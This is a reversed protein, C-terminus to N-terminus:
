RWSLYAWYTRYHLYSLSCRCHHHGFSLSLPDHLPLFRWYGLHSGTSTVQLPLVQGHADFPEMNATGQRCVTEDGSRWSDVSHRSPCLWLRCFPRPSTEARRSRSQSLSYTRRIQKSTLKSWSPLIQNLSISRTFSLSVTAEIMSSNKEMHAIQKQNRSLKWNQPSQPNQSLEKRFSVSRGRRRGRCSCVSM